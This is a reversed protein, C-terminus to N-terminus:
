QEEIKICTLACYVCLLCFGVCLVNTFNHDDDNDCIPDRDDNSDNFVVTKRSVFRKRSSPAARQRDIYNRIGLNASSNKIATKIAVIIKRMVFGLPAIGLYIWFGVATSDWLKASCVAFYISRIGAWVLIVMIAPLASPLIILIFGVFRMTWPSSACCRAIAWGTTTGRIVFRAVLILGFNLAGIM